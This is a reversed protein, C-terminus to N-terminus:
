PSLVVVSSIKFAGRVQGRADPASPHAHGPAKKAIVINTELKQRHKKIPMGTARKFVLSRPRPAEGARKERGTNILHSVTM